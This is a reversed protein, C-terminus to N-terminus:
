ESKKKRGGKAKTEKKDEAVPEVVVPEEEPEETKPAVIVTDSTDFTFEEEKELVIPTDCTLYGMNILTVVAPTRAVKEDVESEADPLLVTPGVGIIKSSINKIKYM